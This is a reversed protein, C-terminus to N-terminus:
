CPLNEAPTAARRTMVEPRRAKILATPEDSFESVGRRNRLSIATM